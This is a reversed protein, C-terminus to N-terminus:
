FRIGVVELEMKGAPRMWIVTDGVKAGTLARALPSFPSILGKAPDAQDEGVIRYTASAGEEDVTEITAGFAVVGAPQDGPNVLIARRIREELFRADRECVAISQKAEDDDLARLGDLTSRVDDLRRRLAELGEPTVYNPHPSQPLDPLPEVHSGDDEHTFAKNM